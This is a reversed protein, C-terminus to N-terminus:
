KPNVFREGAKQLMRLGQVKSTHIRGIVPMNRVDNDKHARHLLPLRRYPTVSEIRGNASM